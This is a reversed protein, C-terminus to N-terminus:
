QLSFHPILWRARRLLLQNLFDYKPVHEASLLLALTTQSMAPDFVTRKKTEISYEAREMYEDIRIERGKVADALFRPITMDKFYFFVEARKVGAKKKLAESHVADYLADYQKRLVSDCHRMVSPSAGRESVYTLIRVATDYELGLSEGLAKAFLETGWAIEEVYRIVGRGKWFVSTTKRDACVVFCEDQPIADALAVGEEIVTLTGWSKVRELVPLLERAVFTGRLRLTVTEGKFGIPNFVHHSGLMVDKVEISALVLSLDSIKMKKAAWARHQHLFEWLGKFVLHDMENETIITAANDRALSLSAEVTTAHASGLAVEISEGVKLPHFFRRADSVFVSSLVAVSKGESAIRVRTIEFGAEHEAILLLRKSPSSSIGLM